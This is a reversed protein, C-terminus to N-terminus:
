KQRVEVIIAPSGTYRVRSVDYSATDIVVGDDDMFHLEVKAPQTPSGYAAELADLIVQLFTM